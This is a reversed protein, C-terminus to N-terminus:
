TGKGVQRYAWNNLIFDLFLIFIENVFNPNYQFDDEIIYPIYGCNIIEKIKIRDRNQVQELSHSKTIKKRHWVGNWLIAIKLEPIIVDADWGNFIPENTLIHYKKSCLESFYIENKSRKQQISASKKGAVQCSYIKGCKASCCKRLDKQKKCHIKKCILCEIFIIETFKGVILKNRNILKLNDGNNRVIGINNISAACSNSCYKNHRQKYTLSVNCKKCKKPKNNYDNKLNLFKDTNHYKEKLSRIYNQYKTNCSYSCFKTKTLNNCELRFCKKM